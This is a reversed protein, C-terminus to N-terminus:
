SQEGSNSKGRNRPRILEESTKNGRLNGSSFHATTRRLSRSLRDREARREATLMGGGSRFFRREGREARGSNETTMAGAPFNIPVAVECYFDTLTIKRLEVSYTKTRHPRALRTGQSRFHSRLSRHSRASRGSLWRSGVDGWVTM